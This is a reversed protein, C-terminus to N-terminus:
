RNFIFIFIRFRFREQLRMNVANDALPLSTVCRLSSTSHDFSMSASPHSPHWVKHQNTEMSAQTSSRTRSFLLEDHDVPPSVSTSSSFEAPTRAHSSPISKLPPSKLDQGIPPTVGNMSLSSVSSILTSVSSSDRVEQSGRVLQSEDTERKWAQLGGVLLVPIHKLIKKFETEYIARVLSSLPSRSDGMSESSDDYVAVLDFKDRNNFLIGEERPAVVLSNLITSATVSCIEPQIPQWQVCIDSNM